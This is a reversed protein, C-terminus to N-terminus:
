RGNAAQARVAGRVVAETAALDGKRGECKSIVTEMSLGEALMEWLNTVSIVIPQEHRFCEM